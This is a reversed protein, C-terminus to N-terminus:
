ESFIERVFYIDLSSKIFLSLVISIPISNLGINESFFYAFFFGALLSFISSLASQKYRNSMILIVGVPGACCLFIQGVILIRLKSIGYLYDEGFLLIIEKAFTFMLIATVLGCLISLLTSSKALRKIGKIDKEAYLRAFKPANVANITILVFSIILATRQTIAIVSIDDNQFFISTLITGQWIFIQQCIGILFLFVKYNNQNDEILKIPQHSDFQKKNFSFLALSICLCVWVILVYFSFISNISSFTNSYIGIILILPCIIRSTLISLSIRSQGQIGYSVIIIGTFAPIAFLANRLLNITETSNVNSLILQFLICLILSPFILPFVNKSIQLFNNRISASILETATDKLVEYERGFTLIFSTITIIPFILFFLGADNPNLKTSIVRIVGSLSYTMMVKYFDKNYKSM